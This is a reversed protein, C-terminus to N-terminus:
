EVSVREWMDPVNKHNSEIEKEGREIWDEIVAHAVAVAIYSERNKKSLYM